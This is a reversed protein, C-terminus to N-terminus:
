GWWTTMITSILILFVGFLTYYLWAGVYQNKFILEQTYFDKLYVLLSETLDMAFGCLGLL